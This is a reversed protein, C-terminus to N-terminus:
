AAERMGLASGLLKRARHVRSMVTGVPVGLARAADRYSQRELDVLVLVTRFHEPLADFTRRTCPLLAGDGADPPAFCAPTTWACPDSGLKELALRERRRRRWRTVFVSFLIQMAWARPQTGEEFTASFRLARELTDQVVDDALAPDRCLRLARTRLDPLLAVLANTLAPTDSRTAMRSRM